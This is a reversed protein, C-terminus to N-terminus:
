KNKDEKLIKDIQNVRDLSTDYVFTLEPVTRWDLKSALIMRIEKLNNELEEEITQITLDEFIPIFQYFIKVHSNDTSLRTEVVSISKLVESKMERQLILNLERLLLSEKRKQTKINAM